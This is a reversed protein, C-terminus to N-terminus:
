TKPRLRDRDSTRLLEIAKNTLRFERLRFPSGPIAPRYEILRKRKLTRIRQQVPTHSYAGLIDRQIDEVTYAFWDEASLWRWLFASLVTLECLDDVLGIYPKYLAFTINNGVPVRDTVQYQWQSKKNPVKQSEIFKRDCLWRLGNVVISRQNGFHYLPFDKYRLVQPENAEGCKEVLFNLWVARGPHDCVLELHNAHYRAVNPTEPFMLPKAVLLSQEIHRQTQPLLQFTGNIPFEWYQGTDRNFAIGQWGNETRSWTAIHPHQYAFENEDIAEAIASEYETLTTTM